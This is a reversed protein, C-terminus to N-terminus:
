GKIYRNQLNPNKYIPNVKLKEVSANQATSIPHWVAQRDVSSCVLAHEKLIKQPVVWGFLPWFVTLLLAAPASPLSVAALVAQSVEM